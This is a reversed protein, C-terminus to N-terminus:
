GPHSRRQAPTWRVPGLGAPILVRDYSIRPHHNRPRHEAQVSGQPSSPSPFAAPPGSTRARHSRRTLRMRTVRFCDTHEPGILQDEVAEAPCTVCADPTAAPVRQEIDAPPLPTLDFVTLAFDLGRDMFRASEPLVYGGREFEFRIVLDSPEQIEVMLVGPGLAHPTGGPIIYTDGPQM